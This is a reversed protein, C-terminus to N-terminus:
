SVVGVSDLDFVTLVAKSSPLAIVGVFFYKGRQSFNDPLQIFFRLVKFVFYSLNFFVLLSGNIM